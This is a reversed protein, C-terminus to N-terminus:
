YVNADGQLKSPGQCPSGYCSDTGRTRKSRPNSALWTIRGGEGEGLVGWCGGGRTAEGVVRAQHQILSERPQTM